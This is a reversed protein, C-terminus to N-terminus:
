SKTGYTSGGYGYALSQDSAVSPEDKKQLKDLGGVAQVIMNGGAVFLGMVALHKLFDKRDMPKKLLDQVAQPTKM